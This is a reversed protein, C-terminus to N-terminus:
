KKFMHFFGDLDFFGIAETGSMIAIAFILGGITMVGYFIFNSFQEPFLLVILTVVFGIITAIIGKKIYAIMGLIVILCIVLFILVLFLSFVIEIIGANKFARMLELFQTGLEDGGNNVGM